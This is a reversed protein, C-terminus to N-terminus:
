LNAGVDIAPEAFLGLSGEFCTMGDDDIRHERRRSLAAVNLSTRAVRAYWERAQPEHSRGVDETATHSRAFPICRIGVDRDDALLEGVVYPFDRPLAEINISAGSLNICSSRLGDAQGRLCRLFHLSRCATEAPWSSNTLTRPSSW